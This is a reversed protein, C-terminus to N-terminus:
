LTFVRLGSILKIMWGIVSDVTQALVVGGRITTGQITWQAVNPGGSCDETSILGAM